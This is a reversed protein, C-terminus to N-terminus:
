INYLLEEVNKESYIKVGNETLLRSTIGMGKIKTGSFTGDYITNSGCSPSSEKLLAKTINYKKVLYLACNAGKNYEKTVDVGKNSIVKDGLIESPNRPTSLGGVVEPCVYILKYKKSLEDIIDIKNNKGNYKTNYGAFCSSVLLYEM